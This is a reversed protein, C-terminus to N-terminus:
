PPFTTVANTSMVVLPRGMSVSSDASGADEEILGNESDDAGVGEVESQTWPGRNVTSHDSPVALALNQPPLVPLSRSSFFTRSNFIRAKVPQKDATFEFHSHTTHKGWNEPDDAGVGEM